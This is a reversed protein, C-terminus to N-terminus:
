RSCKIGVNDIGLCDLYLRTHTGLYSYYSSPIHTGTWSDVIRGLFIHVLGLIKSVITTRANSVEVTPFIWKQVPINKENRPRKKVILVHFCAERKGGYQIYDRPAM